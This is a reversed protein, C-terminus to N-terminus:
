GDSFSERMQQNLQQFDRVLQDCQAKEASCKVSMSVYVAGDRETFQRRVFSPHAPHGEPVFSWIAKDRDSNAIIWGRDTTVSVAPDNRLRELTENVSEGESQYGRYGLGDDNEPATSCATLAAVFVISLLLKM